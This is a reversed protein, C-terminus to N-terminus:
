RGASLALVTPLEAGSTLLIAFTIFWLAFTMFAVYLYDKVGFTDVDVGLLRLVPFQVVLFAALVFIGRPDSAAAADTGVVLGSGVAALVGALCALTTTTVGRLHGTLETKSETAM